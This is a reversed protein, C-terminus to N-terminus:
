RGEEENQKARIYKILEYDSMKNLDSLSPRYKKEFDILKQGSYNTIESVLADTFRQESMSGEYSDELIRQLYRAQKGERSLASYLKDVKVGISLPTVTIIESKDGKRIITNYEKKNREYVKEASLDTASVAVEKLVIATRNLKVIVPNDDLIVVRTTSYGAKSVILTDGKSARLKFEGIGNSVATSGTRSNAIVVENLRQNAFIVLGEIHSTQAAGVQVVVISWLFLYKCM